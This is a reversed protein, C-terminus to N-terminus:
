LFCHLIVIFINDNYQKWNLLHWALNDFEAENINKCLTGVKKSDPNYMISSEGTPKSRHLCSIHQCPLLPGWGYHSRLLPAKRRPLGREHGRPPRELMFARPCAPPSAWRTILYPARSLFFHFLSLVAKPILIIIVHLQQKPLNQVGQSLGKEKKM